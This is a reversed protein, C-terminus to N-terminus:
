CTTRRRIIFVSTSPKVVVLQVIIMNTIQYIYDNSSSLPIVYQQSPTKMYCYERRILEKVITFVYFQSYM